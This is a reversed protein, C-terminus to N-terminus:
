LMGGWDRERTTNEEGAAGRYRSSDSNDRWEGRELIEMATGTPGKRNRGDGEV